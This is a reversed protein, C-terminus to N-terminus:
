SASCRSPWFIALASWRNSKGGRLNMPASEQRLVAISARAPDMGRLGM